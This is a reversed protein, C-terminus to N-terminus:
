IVARRIGTIELVYEISEEYFGRWKQANMGRLVPLVVDDPAHKVPKESGFIGAYHKVGNWRYINGGRQIRIIDETASVWASYGRERYFKMTWEDVNRRFYGIIQKEYEDPWPLSTPGRHEETVIEGVVNYKFPRANWDDPLWRCNFIEADTAPLGAGDAYYPRNGEGFPRVFWRHKATLKRHYGRILKFRISPSYRDFVSKEPLYFKTM